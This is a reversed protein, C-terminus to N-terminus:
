EGTYPCGDMEEGYELPCEDEDDPVADGDNDNDPCGDSDEFKDYDEPMFPCQDTIGPVGDGDEDGTPPSWRLTIGVRWGSANGGYLLGPGGYVDISIDDTVAMKNGLDALVSDTMPGSIGSEGTFYVYPVVFDRVLPVKLGAKWIFDTGGEGTGRPSYTRLGMLAALQISLLKFDAAIAPNFGWMGSGLADSYSGSPIGVSTLICLGPGGRSNDLVQLHLTALSDVLGYSAVSDGGDQYVAYSMALSIGAGSGLGALMSIDITSLYDVDMASEHETGWPQARFGGGAGLVFEGLEPIATGEMGSFADESTGPFDLRLRPKSADAQLPALCWSLTFLLLLLRPVSL